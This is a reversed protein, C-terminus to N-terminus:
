SAPPRPWPSRQRRRPVRWLGFSVVFAALTILVRWGAVPVNAPPLSVAFTGSLGTYVMSGGATYTARIVCNASDVDPVTWPLSGVAEESSNIPIDTAVSVYTGGGDTSFEVDIVGPGHYIYADWMITFVGDAQLTEGGEPQDVRIHAHAQTMGLVLCLTGALLLQTSFRMQKVEM